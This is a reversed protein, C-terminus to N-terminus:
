VTETIILTPIVGAENLMRQIHSNYLTLAHGKGSQPNVFLMLRCPRPLSSLLVGPPSLFSLHLLDSLM